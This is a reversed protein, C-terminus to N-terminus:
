QIAKFQSRANIDFPHLGLLHVLANELDPYLFNYNTSVLKQPIVCSGSLLVEKGMQGFIPKIIWGPLRLIAPRRIAKSLTKSFERQTVPNPATVNVPGSINENNIVHYVVGLFDDEAIWSMMQNGDGLIMGLGSKFAPLLQELAGGRPTLVIGIRLFVVRIGADVAMSAANEWKECVESIFDDGPGATETIPETGRNGYYGIASACILTKPPTKMNALTQAILQTGQVRSDIIRKKKKRTWRGEGIYEGALHIVTHANEFIHSDIEQEEPDWYSSDAQTSYQRVLRMVSHGQTRLFPVLSTGLVGSAGSIVIKQPSISPLMLDNKTIAHRYEFMRHLRRKIIPLAVINSIHPLPLRFRIHDELFCGANNDSHFQHTHEWFRFPGHRQIDQFMRNKEYAMHHALWDVQFPGITVKFHTQTGQSIGKGQNVIEVEEWPPTLRQLAGPQEHWTFAKDM